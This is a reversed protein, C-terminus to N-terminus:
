PTEQPQAEQPQEHTRAPAAGGSGNFPQMYNDGIHDPLDNLEEKRRIDNISFVGIDRMTRYFAARSTADIQMLAARTFRIFLGAKREAPTLMSFSLSQEWATLWPNLTFNLFGQTQQEIGTGWSTSKSTLGCLHPPMRYFTAIAGADWERSQLLQADEATMGVTKYDLGGALLPTRGVNQVGSQNKEWEDRIIKLQAPTANLPAILYGPFKAGNTFMRSAHERESLANGITERLLSLPSCGSYGNRTFGYVHFVDARTLPTPEGSVHFVVRGSSLKQIQVDANALPEVAGIEYNRSRRIRGLGDGRLGAACQAFRRFEFATQNDNPSYSLLDFLPHQRAEEAGAATTQYLKCPLQAVMDGLIAVCAVLTELSTATYENVAAGSVSTGRGFVTEFFQQDPNDVASSRKQVRTGAAITARKQDEQLLTLANREAV